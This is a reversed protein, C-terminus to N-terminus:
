AEEILSLDPNDAKISAVIGIVYIELNLSTNRVNKANLEYIFDRV